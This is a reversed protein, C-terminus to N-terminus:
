KILYRKIRSKEQGVGNDFGNKYAEFILEILGEMEFARLSVIRDEPKYRQYLTKKIERKVKNIKNQSLCPM